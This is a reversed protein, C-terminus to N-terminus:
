LLRGASTELALLAAKVDLGGAYGTLRGDGGVVRHCPIVIAVPNRNCAMGVARSGRPCGVARAIEGYTSRTGYPIALLAQWVSQQFPTGEPSLPLDFERRTGSFYEELQSVATHILPTEREIGAAPKAYSIATIAGDRESIWLTGVVSPYPFCCLTASM